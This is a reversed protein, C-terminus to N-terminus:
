PEISAKRESRIRKWADDALRKKKWAAALEDDYEELDFIKESTERREVGQAELNRVLEALIPKAELDRGWDSLGDDSIECARIAARRAKRKGGAILEDQDTLAETELEWAAERRRQLEKKMSRESVRIGTVAIVMLLLWLLSQNWFSGSSLWIVIGAFFALVIMLQGKFESSGDLRWSM